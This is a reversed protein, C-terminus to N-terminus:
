AASQVVGPVPPRSGFVAGCFPYPRGLDRIEKALGPGDYWFERRLNEAGGVIASHMGCDRCITM